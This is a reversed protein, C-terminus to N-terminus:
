FKAAEELELRYRVYAKKNPCFANHQDKDLFGTHNRSGCIFCHSEYDEDEDTDEDDSEDSEDSCTSSQSM